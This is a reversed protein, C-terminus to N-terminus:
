GGDCILLAHASPAVQISIQKLHLIMAETHVATMIIAAGIARAPCTASFIRVPTKALHSLAFWCVSSAAKHM